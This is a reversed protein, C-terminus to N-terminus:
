AREVELMEKMANVIHTSVTQKHAEGLDAEGSYTHKESLKMRTTELM